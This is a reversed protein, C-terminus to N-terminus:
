KVLAMESLLTMASGGEAMEAVTTASSLSIVEGEAHCSECSIEDGEIYERDEERVDEVDDIVEGRISIGRGVRVENSEGEEMKRRDFEGEGSGFHAGNRASDRGAGPPKM